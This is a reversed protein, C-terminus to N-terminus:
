FFLLSLSTQADFRFYAIRRMRRVMYVHAFCMGRRLGEGFVNVASNWYAQSADGLFGIPNFNAVSRQWARLFISGVEETQNTSIGVGRTHFVRDGDTQGVLTVSSGEYILKFTDDIEVTRTLSTFGLLRPTSFFIAFFPEARSIDSEYGYQFPTDVSQDPDSQM